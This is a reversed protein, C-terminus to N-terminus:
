EAEEAWDRRVVKPRWRQGSLPPARGGDARFGKGMARVTMPWPETLFVPKRVLAQWSWFAADVLDYPKRIPFRRLARELVAHTGLVHVIKGAKEYDALMQSARHVKPGYGAGAKEARFAPRPTGEEVDGSAVLAQWAERYVSLWTDGGQDTEVGVHDAGLEVAKLLALKLAESPSARREWSWLRYLTGRADIGDAQIGMADADDGDTVAPDVWVAARVLDPVERPGCHRFAVGEFLGGALEEVEHQAETRFASYGIDDMLARCAELDQGVWTPTGAVIVYKGDRREVALDRVAPHPGSVIRNALFDARGDALRAFISDAHVLNQIALVALDATGAPILKRTLAKIKRATTEVADLEGDLDDFVMLDPRDEDLKAGRAAVDLGIADLTFGAASRLRNRRWGKPTGYKGLARAALDPYWRGVEPSELMAAVNGVHDDAQDQTECVYLGYRRAGRAGLAVCALEASTSKAGGRPWIAVFPRPRVGRRIAWAWDWLAEHHAAFPVPRGQPDSVYEPLLTLLWARWDAELASTSCDSGSAAASSAPRSSTATGM